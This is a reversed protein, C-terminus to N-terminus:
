VSNPFRLCLDSHSHSPLMKHSTLSTMKLVDNRARTKMVGTVTPGTPRHHWQFGLQGLGSRSRSAHPTLLAMVKDSGRQGM